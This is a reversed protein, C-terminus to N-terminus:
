PHGYFRVRKLAYLIGANVYIGFWIKWTMLPMKIFFKLLQWRTWEYRNLAMSAEFDLREGVKNWIGVALQATPAGLKWTYDMDMPLFPSVHFDKKFQFTKPRASQSDRMDFVYCHRESWPTNTIEGVIFQLANSRDYCYYLALPNMVFGFYRPQALLFGDGDWDVNLKSKIEGAIRERLSLESRGAMYDSAVISIPAFASRWILPWSKTADDVQSLKLWPVFIKYSFDHARDVYRRHGVSGAFIANSHVDQGVMM